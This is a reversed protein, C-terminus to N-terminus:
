PSWSSAPNAGGPAPTGSQLSQSGVNVTEATSAPNAQNQQPSLTATQTSVIIVQRCDAEVLLVNSTTQDRRVRLSHLLMSDYSRLGTTISFQQRSEQLQLLQSYIGAVYDAAAMAGGTFTGTSGTAGIGAAQNSDTWGCRLRVEMPRKYSHDSIQAGAEVPHETVELRDEYDEEITTDVTVGGITSQVPLAFVTSLASVVIQSLNASM